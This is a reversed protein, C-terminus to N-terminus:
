RRRRSSTAAHRHPLNFAEDGFYGAFRPVDGDYDRWRWSYRLRVTEIGQLFEALEQVWRPVRTKM